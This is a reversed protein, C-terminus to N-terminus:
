QHLYIAKLIRLALYLLGGVIILVFLLTCIKYFRPITEVKEVKLVEQVEQVTVTDVTVITRERWRDRWQTLYVTDGRIYERVYISDRLYVSDLHHNILTVTDHQVLTPLQQSKCGTLCLTIM